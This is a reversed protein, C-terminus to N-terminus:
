LSKPNWYRDYQGTWASFALSPVSAAYQPFFTRRFSVNSPPQWTIRIRASSPRAPGLDSPARTLAPHVHPMMLRAPESIQRRPRPGPSSPPPTPLPSAHESPSRTMAPRADRVVLRTAEAFRPWARPGSFRLPPTPLSSVHEEHNPSGDSSRPIPEEASGLSLESPRLMFSTSGRRFSQYNDTSSVRPMRFSGATRIESVTM